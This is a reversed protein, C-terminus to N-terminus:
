AHKASGLTIEDAEPVSYAIIDKYFLYGFFRIAPEANNLVEDSWVVIEPLGISACLCPSKKCFNSKLRVTRGMAKPPSPRQARWLDVFGESFLNPQFQAIKTVVNRDLEVQVLLRGQPYGLEDPTLDYNNSMLGLSARMGAAYGSKLVDNSPQPLSHEEKVVASLTSSWWIKNKNATKRKRSRSKVLLKDPTNTKMAADTRKRVAKQFFESVAHQVKVEYNDEHKITESIQHALTELARPNELIYSVFVKDTLGKLLVLNDNAEVKTGAMGPHGSFERRFGTLTEEYSNGVGEKELYQEFKEYIAKLRECENRWSLERKLNDCQLKPWNNEAHKVLGEFVNSIRFRGAWYLIGLIIKHLRDQCNDVCCNFFLDITLM